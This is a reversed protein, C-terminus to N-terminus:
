RGDFLVISLKDGASGVVFIEKYNALPFAANAKPRLELPQEAATGFFVTDVNAEPAQLGVAGTHRMEKDLLTSLRTPSTPVDVSKVRM